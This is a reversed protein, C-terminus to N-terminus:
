AQKLLKQMKGWKEADKQLKKFKEANSQMKRCQLVM